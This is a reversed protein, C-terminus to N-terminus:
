KVADGLRVSELGAGQSGAEDASTSPKEKEQESGPQPTNGPAQVAGEQATEASNAGGDTQAADPESPVEQDQKQEESEHPQEDAAQAQDAAVAKLAEEVGDGLRVPEDVLCGIAFLVTLGLLAALFFRKILRM